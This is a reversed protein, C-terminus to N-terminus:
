LGKRAIRISVDAMEVFESLSTDLLSDSPIRNNADERRVREGSDRTDDALLASKKSLKTALM